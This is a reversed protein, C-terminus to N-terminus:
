PLSGPGEAKHLCLLLATQSSLHMNESSVSDALVKIRPKGPELVTLFLHGNNILSGGIYLIKNYCGGSFCLCAGTENM